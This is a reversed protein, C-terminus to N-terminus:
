TIEEEIANTASPNGELSALRMPKVTNAETRLTDLEDETFLRWNRRDRHSVEPFTRERIWRLLTNKSISAIRCAEATRYYTEGNLRIPM